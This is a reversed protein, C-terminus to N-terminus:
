RQHQRAYVHMAEVIANHQDVYSNLSAQQVRYREVVQNSLGVQANYRDVSFEDSRDLTARMLRLQAQNSDIEASLAQCLARLRTIDADHVNAQRKMECLHDFSGQGDLVYTTGDLTFSYTTYGRGRGSNTPRPTAAYSIPAPSVSPAVPTPAAVVSVPAAVPPTVPDPPRTIVPAPVTSEFSSQPRTVVPAPVTSEFSSRPRSRPAEEDTILRVLFGLALAGFLTVVFPYDRLKKWDM